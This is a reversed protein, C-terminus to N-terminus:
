RAYQLPVNMGQEPVKIDRSFKIGNASVQWTGDSCQSQTSPTQGARLQLIRETAELEARFRMLRHWAGNLNPIAMLESGSEVSARATAFQPGEADCAKSKLAEATYVRMVNLYEAEQLRFQMERLADKLSVRGVPIHHVTWAEVQQSSAMAGDYDFTFTESLWAPAPLPMKRAAANSLRSAAVGVILSLLDPRSWLSRNLQWSAHVEDWAAPDNRRAKDLARVALIRQLQMHGTLNPIPADFGKHMKTEWVIPAGSLIHDRMANLAADNAALYQATAPPPADIADGAREFQAKLYENIEKRVEMLKTEAPKEASRVRPTLELQAARALETLKTAGASQEADPYRKAADDVPGLGGAWAAEAARHEQTTAYSRVAFWGIVVAVVVAAFVVLAKKM